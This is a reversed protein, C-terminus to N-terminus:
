RARLHTGRSCPARLCSALRAVPGRM